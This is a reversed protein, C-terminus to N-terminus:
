PSMKRTPRTRGGGGSRATEDGGSQGDGDGGDSSNPRQRRRRCGTPSKENQRRIRPPPRRQRQRRIVGAVAPITRRGARGEVSCWWSKPSFNRSKGPRQRSACCGLLYILKLNKGLIILRWYQRHYANLAFPVLRVLLRTRRLRSRSRRRIETLRFFDEEKQQRGINNTTTQSATHQLARVCQISLPPPPNSHLLAARIASPLPPQHIRM